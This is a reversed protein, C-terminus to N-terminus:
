TECLLDVVEDLRDRIDTFWSEFDEVPYGTKTGQPNALYVVAGFQGRLRILTTLAADITSIDKYKAQTEPM